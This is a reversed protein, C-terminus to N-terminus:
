GAFRAEDMGKIGTRLRFLDGSQPTDSKEKATLGLTASTVYLEDLHKGGFACSTPNPVPLRYERDIKGEPNYRVVKWGGWFASWVFGESDVTMGDPVGGDTGSQVFVRRNKISGAAADFDYAHICYRFSDTFYMTKQDPSWGIGNSVTIDSDMLHFSKDGDLRFLQGNPEKPNNDDMSGVWFRGRPDVAADNFRIGARGELPNMMTEFKNSEVDWTSLGRATAAIMGGKKRIALAMVPMGTEFVDHRETRTSFRFIRHEEVFSVWYLSEEGSHWVPGEGIVNQIQLVHEVENM